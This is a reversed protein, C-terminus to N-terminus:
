VNIKERKLKEKIAIEVFTTMPVGSQIKHKRVLSVVKKDIKLSEWEKKNEM